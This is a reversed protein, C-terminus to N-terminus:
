FSSKLFTFFAPCQNSFSFQRDKNCSPLLGWPLLWLTFIEWGWFFLLKKRQARSHPGSWPHIGFPGSNWIYHAVNSWPGYFEQWFYHVIYLTNHWKPHLRLQKDVFLQHALLNQLYHVLLQYVVVKAILTSMPGRSRSYFGRSPVRANTYVPYPHFMNKHNFHMQM